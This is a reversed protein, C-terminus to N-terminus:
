DYFILCIVKGSGTKAIGIVDRGSMIAPIAQAQIPTPKEYRMVKRIVELVSPPLGFQAWKEIPKPCRAGRVKIGGLAMRRDDVEKQTMSKLEPPEIYFQKNFPEYQVFSHNINVMDKRKAQIKAAAAAIQAEPSTFKIEEDEDDGSSVLYDLLEPGNGNASVSKTETEAQKAATDVEEMFSELADGEEAESVIEERKVLLPNYKVPIVEEESSEEFEPLLTTSLVEKRKQLPKIKIGFASKKYVPKNVKLDKKSEKKILTPPVVIM